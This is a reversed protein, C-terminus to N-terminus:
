RKTKNKNKDCLCRKEFETDEKWHHLKNKMELCRQTLCAMDKIGCIERKPMEGRYVATCSERERHTLILLAKSQLGIIYWISWNEGSSKRLKKPHFLGRKIVQPHSNLQRSSQLCYYLFPFPACCKMYM